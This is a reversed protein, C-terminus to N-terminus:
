AEDNDFVVKMEGVRPSSSPKTKSKLMERVWKDADEPSSIYHMPRGAAIPIQACATRCGTVVLIVQAEPSDASVFQIMDGLRERISAVLRVRDYQPRCGGCYKLGVKVKSISAYWWPTV